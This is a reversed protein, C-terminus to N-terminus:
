NRGNLTYVVTEYCLLYKSHRKTVSAHHGVFLLSIILISFM